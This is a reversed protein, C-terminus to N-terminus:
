GEPNLAAGIIVRRVPDTITLRYVRDRARGLRTWRVRAAYQGQKGISAPHQNGWTHGGDNSWDLLAVPASAFGSELGWGVEMDIQLCNHIVWQYDPGSVHAAARVSPMPAAGDYHYDLDLAYLDGTSFDGVIHLGGYYGHCSSRHRGLQGTSPDLYARQHWLQTAADYCWTAGASPFTLMYFTHGEQQYAYGVADSIDGYSAIAYEIADTSVRQPTYGNLRWVIGGGEAAAGIWFVSNDMSVASWPAACGQEIAANSDRSFPFDIDGTARWIETVSRKFIVIDSHNVLLRVIPEANSEASAFDLADFTIDNSGSIYFQNTGPRNFIAFTTLIDVSTAGYFAEDNIRTVTDAGLDIVYGNAGTVIVAQTGNDTIAVPTTGPDISGIKNVIPPQNLGIAIRYVSAGSVVILHGGDTPPHIARVPADDLLVLPRTGPTSYLASVAKATGSEGLVPFLNICAQADLNKSRAQYSAGVFPIQPM